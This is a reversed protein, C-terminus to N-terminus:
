RPDRGEEVEQYNAAAKTKAEALSVTPFDGFEIDVQEGNIHLRQGFVKRRGESTPSEVRLYLGHGVRDAQNEIGMKEEKQRRFHCCPNDGDHRRKLVVCKM